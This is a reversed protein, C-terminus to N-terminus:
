SDGARRDRRATSAGWSSEVTREGLRAAAVEAVSDDTTSEEVFLEVCWTSGKGRSIHRGPGLAEVHGRGVADPRLRHVASQDLSSSWQLCDLNLAKTDLVEFNLLDRVRDRPWSLHQDRPSAWASPVCATARTPSSSSPVTTLQGLLCDAASGEVADRVEDVRDLGVEGGV